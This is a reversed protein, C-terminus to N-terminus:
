ISRQSKEIFGKRVVFAPKIPPRQQGDLNCVVGFMGRRGLPKLSEDIRSSGSTNEVRCNSFRHAKGDFLALFILCYSNGALWRCDIQM